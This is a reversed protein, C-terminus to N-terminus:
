HKAVWGTMFAIESEQALVIAKSLKRLAPDKGFELQVKAVDIAGEHHPIMMAAFDIDADGTM